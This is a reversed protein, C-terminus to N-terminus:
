VIGNWGSAGVMTSWPCDEILITELSQNAVEKGGERRWGWAVTESLGDGCSRGGNNSKGNM